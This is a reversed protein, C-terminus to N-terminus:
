LTGTRPPQQGTLRYRGRHQFKWRVPDHVTHTRANRWHRNLNATRAVSRAGSIEFLASSVAMSADTAVIKVAAVALSAETARHEGPETMVTSPTPWPAKPSASTSPQTSCSLTRGTATAHGKRGALRYGGDDRPVLRGNRSKPLRCGASWTAFLPRRASANCSHPRSALHRLPGGPRTSSHGCDTTAM